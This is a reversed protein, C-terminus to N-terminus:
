SIKHLLRHRKEQLISLLSWESIQVVGRTQIWVISDEPQATCSKQCPIVGTAPSAPLRVLSCPIQANVGETCYLELPAERPSSLLPSFLWTDRASSLADQKYMYKFCFSFLFFILFYDWQPLPIRANFQDWQIWKNLYKSIKVQEHEGPLWEAILM